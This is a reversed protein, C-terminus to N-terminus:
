DPKGGSPAIRVSKVITLLRTNIFGLQAPSLPRKVFEPSALSVDTEFLYCIPRVYTAYLKGTTSQSMGWEGTERVSFSLHGLVVATAPHAESVSSAKAECEVESPTPIASYVIGFGELNTKSYAGGDDNRYGVGAIPQTTMTLAPPHYGFQTTPKWIGLYRFTIGRQGDSYTANLTWVQKSTFPKAPVAVNQANRDQQSIAPLAVFAILVSTFSLIRV